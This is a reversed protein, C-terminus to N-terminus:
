KGSGFSVVAPLDVGGDMDIQGPTQGTIETATVTGDDAQALLVTQAVPVASALKSKVDVKFTATDRRETPVIDVQITISRKQKANTNPDFVNALVRALEYNFREALAGDMLEDLNRIPRTNM